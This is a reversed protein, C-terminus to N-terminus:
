NILKGNIEIPYMVKEAMYNSFFKKLSAGKLEKIFWFDFSGGIIGFNPVYLFRDIGRQIDYGDAASWDDYIWFLYSDMKQFKTKKSLFLLPREFNELVFNSESKHSNGSHYGFASVYFREFKKISLPKSLINIDCPPMQNPFVTPGTVIRFYETVCFDAVKYKGNHKVVLRIDSRKIPISPYWSTNSISAHGSQFIDLLSNSSIMQSKVVSTDISTWPQKTPFVSFLIIRNPFLLNYLEIEADLGYLAKSNLKVRNVKYDNSNENLFFYKTNKNPLEQRLGVSGAMLLNLSFFVQIGCLLMIKKLQKM